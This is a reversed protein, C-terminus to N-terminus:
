EQTASQGKGSTSRRPPRKRPPKKKAEAPAAATVSEAVASPSQPAGHLTKNYYDDLLMAILPSDEEAESLTRGLAIFRRMRERELNDRSRLDAELSAIVRQAVIDAVDTEEPVTREELDTINFSRAISKLAFQEMGAALTIATGSAGVRGTRGARHIYLEPDEPPEYQFVHSLAPIDIGRAAVDTAVLFRLEGKRLREMVKERAGQSLDSSLEDADYGFRKLVVTVFHVTSRMNCFIIASIPNEMEIIRILAREKQVGQVIYFVHETDAVHVHDRSLSLFDSQGLFEEALRIIFPSFTASFMCGNLPRKPLYHQIRKMDPYFGMSLMRDAEDFVFISLGDLTLTGKLLHDLIRGPTGVVLQAGAGLAELQPEYKVGGYVVACRLESGGTLLEAERSVQLALERTPVLVLAQCRKEGPKIREIIPLLFAGTKGSGTHSQVMLNRRAAIYPIAQSQVPLLAPWGAKACAAQLRPSLDSLTVAALPDEPKATQEGNLDRSPNKLETAGSNEDQNQEEKYDETMKGRKGDMLVSYKFITRYKGDLAAVM